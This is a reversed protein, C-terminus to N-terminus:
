AKKEHKEKTKSVNLKENKLRCGKWKDFKDVSKRRCILWESKLVTTEEGKVVLVWGANLVNWLEANVVFQKRGVFTKKIQCFTPNLYRNKM